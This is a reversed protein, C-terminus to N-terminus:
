IIKELHIVADAGNFKGAPNRKTIQIRIKELYMYKESLERMIHNAVQEVLNERNAMHKQVIQYIIEYDIVDSIEKFERDEYVMQDLYVSVVFEGGKEAEGPHIGHYAHFIMNEVSTTLKM